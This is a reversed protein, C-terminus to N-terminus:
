CAYGKRKTGCCGDDPNRFADDHTIEEDNNSKISHQRLSVINIPYKMM